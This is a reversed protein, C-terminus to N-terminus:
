KREYASYTDLVRKLLQQQKPPLKSIDLSRVAAIYVKHREESKNEGSWTLQTYLLEHFDKEKDGDTSVAFGGKEAISLWQLSWDIVQDPTGWGQIPYLLQRASSNKWDVPMPSEAVAQMWLLGVIATQSNGNGPELADFIRQQMFGRKSCVPSLLWAEWTHRFAPTAHERRLSIPYAMASRKRGFAMKFDSDNRYANPFYRDFVEFKLTRSTVGYLQGIEEMREPHDSYQQALLAVVEEPTLDVANDLRIATERDM